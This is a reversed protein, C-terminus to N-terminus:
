KQADTPTSLLTFFSGIRLIRLLRSTYEEDETRVKRRRVSPSSGRVYYASMGHRGHATRFAKQGRYQCRTSSGIKKNLPPSKETKKKAVKSVM